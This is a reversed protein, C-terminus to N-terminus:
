RKVKLKAPKHHKPKKACTHYTRSGVLDLGLVTTANIKITFAGPPLGKLNITADVYGGRHVTRISHNKLAVRVTKFADHPPEGLHIEFRRGSVCKAASPHLLSQLFAAQGAAATLRAILASNFCGYSVDSAVGDPAITPQTQGPESFCVRLYKSGNPEELLRWATPGRTPNETCGSKEFYWQHLGWYSGDPQLTMDTWIQQGVPHTCEAFRTEAVVTGLFTGGVAPQIAIQGGNFSWIGEIASTAQASGVGTGLALALATVLVLLPPRMRRLPLREIM